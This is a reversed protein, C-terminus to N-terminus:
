LGGRAAPSKNNKRLYIIMKVMYFNFYNVKKLLNISILFLNFIGEILSQIRTMTQLFGFYNEYVIIQYYLYLYLFLIMM